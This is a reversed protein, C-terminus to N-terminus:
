CTSTEGAVQIEKSGINGIHPPNGNRRMEIYEILRTRLRDELVGHYEKRKLLLLRMRPTLDELMVLMWLDDGFRVPVLYIRNWTYRKGARIAGEMMQGKESTKAAVFRQEYELATVPSSFLARFSGCCSESGETPLKKLIKEGSSNVLRIWGSPNLFFAPFPLAKMMAVFLEKTQHNPVPLVRSSTDLRTITCSACAEKNGNGGILTDSDVSEPQDNWPTQSYTM